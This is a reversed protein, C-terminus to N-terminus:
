YNTTWQVQSPNFKPQCRIFKESLHSLDQYCIIHFVAAATVIPEVIIVSTSNFNYLQTYHHSVCYVFCSSSIYKLSVLPKFILIINAWIVHSKNFTFHFKHRVNKHAVHNWDHSSFQSICRSIPHATCQVSLGLRHTLSLGHSFDSRTTFGWKFYTSSPLIGLQHWYHICSLSVFVYFYLFQPLSWSHHSVIRHMCFYYYNLIVVLLANFEWLANRNWLARITERHVM